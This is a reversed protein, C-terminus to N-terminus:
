NRNTPVNIEDLLAQWHQYIMMMALTDLECYKLLANLRERKEPESVSERLLRGYVVMAETGRRVTTDDQQDMMIMYPNRVMEQENDPQWWVISDFNSSSYPNSYMRKLHSSLTLVSQVVDKISLSNSMKHNYYFNKVMRSLDALYPGKGNNSDHRQLLDEIWGILVDADEVEATEQQLERRIIKLANREFNSYQVITGEQILPIRRLRRICEYSPYGGNLDDIWEYHQWSGDEQLTHCSFQFVVLHYPKRNRRVPIIYNGAEFDLFHVPFEWRHLEKFLRPRIIEKPVHSGKAKLIQLTQRQRETIRDNANEIDDAEKIEESPIQHQFYFKRELWRDTVPGILDFVMEESSVAPKDFEPQWCERFGSDEGMLMRDRSIRFECNKCKSGITAPYKEGSFYRRSLEEVVAGFPQGEFGTGAFLEGKWVSEIQDNVDLMVLLENGAKQLEGVAASPKQKASKLKEYLHDVSTRSVKNPLVLCPEISWQPHLQRVVHLLFGFDMLYDAWKSHIQGRPSTLSHKAPNFAKTQIYFAEVTNGKKRLVPVKVLINQWIFVADFLTVEDKLLWEATKSHAKGRSSEDIFLGEPFLSRVLVKFQEKNHYNHALFPLAERSEPYNNAKYFLKTPCELGARFLHRTFYTNSRAPKPM